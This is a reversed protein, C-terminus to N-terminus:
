EVIYRNGCTRLHLRQMRWNPYISGLLHYFAKSHNMEQLHCLEHAIVYDLSTIAAKVLHTNLRVLGKRSCTGWTRKMRRLRLEPLYQSAWSTRRALVQLRETFLSAAQQRYWLRVAAKISESDQRTSRVRIVDDILGTPRSRDGASMIQLPYRAGQYFHLAGTEYCLPDLREQRARAIFRNVKVSNQVM